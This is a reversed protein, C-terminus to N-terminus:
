EIVSVSSIAKLAEGAIALDSKDTLDGQPLAEISERYSNLLKDSFGDLLAFMPKDLGNVGCFVKWRASIKKLEAKTEDSDPNKSETILAIVEDCLKQHLIAAKRNLRENHTQRAEAIKREAKSLPKKETKTEEM